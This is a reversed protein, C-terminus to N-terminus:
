KSLLYCRNIQPVFVSKSVGLENIRRRLVDPDITNFDFMGFHHCMMLPINLRRCLDFAEDFTFNGIINRSTRYEDRGNVPMMALDISKGALKEELGKYPIGDGTHYITLQGFRLIYGLFFHQGAQNTKIQEHASAVVAISIDEGLDICDGENTPIVRASDLGLTRIKETEAAPAVIRCEPSSEMVESVTLPDLHDSHAHSCLLFDLKKVQKPRIPPSMMRIHAFEEGAYKEALFDSLYPDIMLRFDKYLFIFGAQGLWRFRLIDDVDCLAQLQDALAEETDYFAIKATNM